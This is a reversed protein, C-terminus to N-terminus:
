IEAAMGNAIFESNEGIRAESIFLALTMPDCGGTIARGCIEITECVDAHKM